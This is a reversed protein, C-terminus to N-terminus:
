NENPDLTRRISEVVINKALPIDQTIKDVCKKRQEMAKNFAESNQPNVGSNFAAGHVVHDISLAIKEIQDFLEKDLWFKNLKSYSIFDDISEQAVKFTDGTEHIPSSTYIFDKGKQEMKELRHYLGEIVDIRKEHLKGFKIQHEITNKGVESKIDQTLKTTKELRQIVDKFSAKLSKEEGQKKLFSGGYAGLASSFLAVLAIILYDITNLSIGNTIIENVLDQLNKVAM